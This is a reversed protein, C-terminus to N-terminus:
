AAVRRLRYKWWWGGLGLLLLASVALVRGKEATNIAGIEEDSLPPANDKGLDITPDTTLATVLNGRQNFRYGEYRTLYGPKQGVLHWLLPADSAEKIEASPDASLNDAQLLDSRLPKPTYAYMEVDFVGSHSSFKLPLSLTQSPYVIHLPKVDSFSGRLGHLKLTLFVAGPKLYYRQTALPVAGYGNQILWRNLESGANKPNLVEVPQVQYHGITQIPHVLIAEQMPAVGTTATAGQNSARERKENSAEVLNFMEKFVGADAEEYHTPLSPLPIVWAMTDPLNGSSAQLNTRIILHANVGDHFLLAEKTKESVSGKYTRPVHICALSPALMGAILGAALLARTNSRKMAARARRM